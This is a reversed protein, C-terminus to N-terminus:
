LCLEYRSHDITSTAMGDGRGHWRWGGGLGTYFTTYENQNRKNFSGNINRRRRRAGTAMGEVAFRPECRRPYAARILPRLLASPRVFVHPISVLQRLPRLGTVVKKESATISIFVVAFIAMLQLKRLTLENCSRWRRSQASDACQRLAGVYNAM